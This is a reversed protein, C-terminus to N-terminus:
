KSFPSLPDILLSLFSSPLNSKVFDIVVNKYRDKIIKKKFCEFQVTEGAIQFIFDFFLKVSKIKGHNEDQEL